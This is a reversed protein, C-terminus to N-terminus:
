RRRVAHTKPVPAGASGPHAGATPGPSRPGGRPLRLRPLAGSWLSRTGLQLSSLPITTLLLPGCSRPSRALLALKYLELGLGALFKAGSVRCSHGGFTNRGHADTTAAGTRGALITITAVMATKSVIDGCVDPFLPLDAPLAGLEDSFQGGLVDLHRIASRVACPVEM